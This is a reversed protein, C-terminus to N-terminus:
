NTSAKRLKINMFEPVEPVAVPEIVANNQEDM